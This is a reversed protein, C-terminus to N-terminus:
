EPQGEQEIIYDVIKQLIGDRKLQLLASDWACKYVINGTNPDFTKHIVFQDMYEKTVFAHYYKKIRALPISLGNYKIEQSYTVIKLAM